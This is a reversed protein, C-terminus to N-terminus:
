KAQSQKKVRAATWPPVIGNMCAYAVAQGLHEHADAVILFVIDGESADPGFQKVITQLQKNSRKELAVRVYEFSQNIQSIIKAKDTTSKEYDKQTFGPAPAAGFNPALSFNLSAVHLFVESFSRVGDGPRWTFKEVPVADALDAFQKQMTQLDQLAQPKLDYSPPDGASVAPQAQATVFTFALALAFKLLRLEKMM